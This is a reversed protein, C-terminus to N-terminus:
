NMTSPLMSRFYEVEVETLKMGALAREAVAPNTEALNPFVEYVLQNRSVPDTIGEVQHWALVPNDYAVESAVVALARDKENPSGLSQTWRVVTDPAAGSEIWGRTVSEIAATRETGTPLALAAQAAATPDLSAWTGFLGDAMEPTRIPEALYAQYAPAPADFAWAEFVAEVAEGRGRGVSLSRAWALAQTPNKAAWESAVAYAADVIYAASPDTLNAEARTAEEASLGEYAEELSIGSAERDARVTASFEQQRAEVHESFVTAARQTDTAAMGTLVGCMAYAKEAPNIFRGAWELAFDPDQEGLALGVGMAAELRKPPASIETVLATAADPDVAALESAISTLASELGDGLLWERAWALAQVPDNGAVNAIVREIIELLQTSSAVQDNVDPLAAMMAPALTLWVTRDEDDVELEDLFEVFGALDTNMWRRILEELHTTSNSALASRFTSPFGAPDTPIVTATIVSPSDGLASAREARSGAKPAALWLLTATLAAILGILVIKKLLSRSDSSTFM